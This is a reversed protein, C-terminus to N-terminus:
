YTFFCVTGCNTYLGPFSFVVFLHVAKERKWVHRCSIREPNVPINNSSCRNACVPRYLVHNDFAYFCTQM